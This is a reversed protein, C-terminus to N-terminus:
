DASLIIWFRITVTGTILIVILRNDTKRVRMKATGAVRIQTIKQYHGDDALQLELRAILIIRLASKSRRERM